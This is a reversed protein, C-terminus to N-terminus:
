GRSTYSDQVPNLHEPIHHLRVPNIVYICVAGNLLCKIIEKMAVYISQFNDDDPIM